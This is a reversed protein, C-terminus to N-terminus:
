PVTRVGSPTQLSIPSLVRRVKSRQTIFWCMEEPVFAESLAQVMLDRSFWKKEFERLLSPQFCLRVCFGKFSPSISQRFHLWTDSNPDYDRNIGSSGRALTRWQYYQNEDVRGQWYQAYSQPVSNFLAQELMLVSQPTTNTIHALERQTMSRDLRAKRYPNEVM